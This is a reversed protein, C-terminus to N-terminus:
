PVTATMEASAALYPSPPPEETEIPVGLLPAIRAIVRGAAPAATWGATAFGHSEANGIPEDFMTFVLYRPEQAPFIGAFSTIQLRNSYGRGNPKEATGTKGGVFYGPVDAFGGTGDTVALRMLARMALSAEESVVRQGPASEPDKLFSPTLRLGGNMTSAAAAAFSLPNVSVGHGYSITATEIEGWRQPTLPSAMEPVETRLPSLLGLKTLFARQREAGSRLGIQATGINSSEAFVLAASLDHGHSGYDGISYRGFRLPKDVVFREDLRITEEDLAEAFAFIKFISGLEYVDQTMRNRISDGDGLSRTNPEYDPLSVMALVEGTHVDLVIGGAAKAQFARMTDALERRLAFQVRMDLSLAVPEQSSRLMEDLGLELGSIGNGDPDVQGVVHSVVRGNPYFRKTGEEFFLGPLGLRMAEARTDPTVARAVLVYGDRPAFVERLRAIDAGTVSSLGRAAEEIDWFDAPTAYLDSVPLDRAILVGNRDVLDARHGEGVPQVAAALSPDTANFVTLDVLRAGIVTFAIASLIAAVSIRTRVLQTAETYADM